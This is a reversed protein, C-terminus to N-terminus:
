VEKLVASVQLRKDKAPSDEEPAAPTEVAPAISVEAPAEAEPSSLKRGQMTVKREALVLAQTADGSSTAVAESGAEETIEPFSGAVAVAEGEEEETTEPFSGAAAVAEAEAEETTEPFSGAAAVAEGEAEETTKPFNGAAVVAQNIPTASAVFEEPAKPAETIGAKVTQAAHVDIGHSRGEPATDVKKTEVGTAENPPATEGIAIPTAGMSEAAKSRPSPNIGEVKTIKATSQSKRAEDSGIASKTVEADADEANGINAKTVKPTKRAEQVEGVKVEPKAHAAEVDAYGKSAEWTSDTAADTASVSPQEGDESTAHV